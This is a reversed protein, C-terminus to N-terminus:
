TEVLVELHGEAGASLFSQFDAPLKQAISFVSPEPDFVRTGIWNRQTVEPM